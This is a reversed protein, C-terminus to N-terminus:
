SHTTINNIIANLDNTMLTTQEAAGVNGIQMVLKNSEKLILVVQEYCAILAALQEATPKNLRM